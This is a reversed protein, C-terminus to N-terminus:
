RPTIWGLSQARMLAQTRNRVGLRGYVGQLLRYMARESYGARVALDTVTTGVALDQLWALEDTGLTPKSVPVSPPGARLRRLVDLPLTAVGDAAADVARRLTVPATDRSLVSLAGAQIARLGAGVPEGVVLTIVAVASERAGIEALLAWDRDSELTLILVSFQGGSAWAALNEPDEVSHGSASLEAAVGARYFPLPDAIAVRVM